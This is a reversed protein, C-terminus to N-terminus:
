WSSVYLFSIAALALGSHASIRNSIILALYGFAPLAIVYVLLYSGILKWVLFSGLLISMLPGFSKPLFVAVIVSVVVTIRINKKVLLPM